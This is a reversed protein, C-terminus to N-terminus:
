RFSHFCSFRPFILTAADAAMQKQHCDTKPATKAVNTKFREGTSAMDMSLMLLLVEVVRRWADELRWWGKATQNTTVLAAFYLCPWTKQRQKIQKRM